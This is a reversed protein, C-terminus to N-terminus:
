LPHPSPYPVDLSEEQLSCVPAERSETMAHMSCGIGARGREMGKLLTRERQFVSVVVETKKERGAEEGGGEHLLQIFVFV